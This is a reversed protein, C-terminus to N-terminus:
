GSEQRRASGAEFRSMRSFKKLHGWWNRYRGHRFSCVQRATKSTFRTGPMTFGASIVAKGCSMAEFMVSGGSLSVLVDLSCLVEPMDNRQGTFFVHGSLGNSGVIKQLSNYYDNRDCRGIVFFLVKRAFTERIIEAARLFEDQRKSEIVRGAIGVRLEGDVSFDRKLVNRNKSPKFLGIDVGDDIQAIKEPCIGAEILNRKVRVSIAVIMDARDFCHKRVDRPCVPARVHLVSPIGLRRSIWRMYGTLWLDSSHVISIGERSLCGAIREADIYRLLADPYKRWSRMPRVLTKVGLRRLADTFVGERRCVVVPEYVSRDLNEILYLLQRQSGGMSGGRCLYAIKKAQVQESMGVARGCRYIVPVCNIGM